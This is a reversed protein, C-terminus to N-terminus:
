TNSLVCVCMYFLPPQKTDSVKQIIFLINYRDSLNLQQIHSMKEQLLILLISLEIIYVRCLLGIKM